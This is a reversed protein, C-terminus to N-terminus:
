EMHMKLLCFLAAKRGSLSSDAGLAIVGGLYLSSM